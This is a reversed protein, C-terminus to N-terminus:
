STMSVYMEVEQPMTFWEYVSSNYENLFNYDMFPGYQRLDYECVIVSLPNALNHSYSTVQVYMGEEVMLVGNEYSNNYGSSNVVDIGNVTITLQNPGSREWRLPYNAASIESFCACLLLTLFVTLKRM